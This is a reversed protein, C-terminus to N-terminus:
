VSPFGVFFMSMRVVTVSVFRTTKTKFFGRVVFAKIDLGNISSLSLIMSFAFDTSCVTCFVSVVTFMSLIEVCCKRWSMLKSTSVYICANFIEFIPGFTM